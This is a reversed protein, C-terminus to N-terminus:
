TPIDGSRRTLSDIEMMEKKKEMERWTRLRLWAIFINWGIFETVLQLYHVSFLVLYAM